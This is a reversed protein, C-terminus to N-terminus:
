DFVDYDVFPKLVDFASKYVSFKAAFYAQYKQSFLKHDFPVQCVVAIMDDHTIANELRFVAAVLNKLPNLEDQSFRGEDLV